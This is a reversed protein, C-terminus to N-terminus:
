KRKGLRKKLWIGGQIAALIGFYVAVGPGVQGREPARVLRQSGQLSPEPSQEPAAGRSQSPQAAGAQSAIQAISTLVAGAGTVGAGSQAGSAITKEAECKGGFKIYTETPCAICM